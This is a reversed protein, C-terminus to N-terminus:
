AARVIARRPKSASASPATSTTTLRTAAATIKPLWREVAQRALARDERDATSRQNRVIVAGAVLSVVVLVAGLALALLGRRAM